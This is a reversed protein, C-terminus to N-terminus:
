GLALQDEATLTLARTLTEAVPGDAPGAARDLHELYRVELAALTDLIEGLGPADHDDPGDPRDAVGAGPEASGSRDDAPSSDDIPERLFTERPFERLEPLRRYWAEALEARHARVTWLENVREAESGIRLVHTLGAHLELELRCSAGVWAAAEEIRAGAPVVVARDAVPDDGM